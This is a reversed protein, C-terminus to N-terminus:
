IKYKGNKREKEIAIKLDKFRQEFAEDIRKVRKKLNKEEDKEAEKFDVM